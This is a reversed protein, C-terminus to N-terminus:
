KNLWGNIWENIWEKMWENISYEKEDKLKLILSCLMGLDDYIDYDTVVVRDSMSDEMLKIIRPGCYMYRDSDRSITLQNNDTGLDYDILQYEKFIDFYLFNYRRIDGHSIGISHSLRLCQALDEFINHETHYKPSEHTGYHMLIVQGKADNIYENNTVSIILNDLYHTGTMDFSQANILQIEKIFDTKKEFDIYEFNPLINSNSNSNVSQNDDIRNIYGIAYFRKKNQKYLVSLNTLLKIETKSRLWDQSIKIAFTPNNHLIQHTKPHMFSILYIHSNNTSIHFKVKTTKLNINTSKSFLFIDIADNTLYYTPRHIATYTLLQWLKTFSDLNNKKQNILLIRLHRTEKNINNENINYIYQILFHNRNTIAFGFINSLYGKLQRDPDIRTTLLQNLVEYDVSYVTKLDTEINSVKNNSKLEAYVPAVTSICDPKGSKDYTITDSTNKRGGLFFCNSANGNSTNAAYICPDDFFNTKLEVSIQFTTETKDLSNWDLHVDKHTTAQIWMTIRINWM